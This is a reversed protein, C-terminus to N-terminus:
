KSFGKICVPNGLPFFIFLLFNLYHVCHCDGVCHGRSILHIRRTLARYGLFTGM